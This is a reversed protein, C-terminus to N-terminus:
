NVLALMTAVIFVYFNFLHALSFQSHAKKTDMKICYNTLTSFYLLLAGFIFTCTTSNFIFISIFTLALMIETATYGFVINFNFLRINYYIFCANAVAYMFFLIYFCMNNVMINPRTLHCVGLLVSLVLSIVCFGAALSCIVLNLKQENLGAKVRKNPASHPVNELYKRAVIM